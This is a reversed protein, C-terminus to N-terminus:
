ARGAIRDKVKQMETDKLKHWKNAEALIEEATITEQGDKQMRFYLDMLVDSALDAGILILKSEIPTM